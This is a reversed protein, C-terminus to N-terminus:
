ETAAADFAILSLEEALVPPLLSLLSHGVTEAEVGVAVTGGKVEEVESNFGARERDFENANFNGVAKGITSEM